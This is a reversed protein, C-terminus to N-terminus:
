QYQASQVEWRVLFNGASSRSSCGLQQQQQPQLTVDLTSVTTQGSTFQTITAHVSQSPNKNTIVFATGGTSCDGSPSISLDDKAGALASTSSLLLGAILVLWPRSELVKRM